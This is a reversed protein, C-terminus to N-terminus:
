PVAHRYHPQHASRHAGCSRPDHRRPRSARHGAAGAQRAQRQRRAALRRPRRERRRRGSRRRAQRQHRAAPRRPEVDPAARPSELKANVDRLLRELLEADPAPRPSELKANIDRLLRELLEADPAAARTGELKANIERLLGELHEADPAAHTGELKANIDRLLRELLEADPAAARAGELKANIDRLGELIEANPATPPAGELKASIERMLGELPRTDLAVPREGLRRLVQELPGTDIIPNTRRDIRAGLDHIMSEFAAPDISAATPRDLKASIERMAQELASTDLRAGPPSAYRTEISERVGDIRRSLEELARPSVTPAAPPRELAQDMKSAVQELRREISTLASAPTSREVQARAEALSAVLQASEVHPALSTPLRDVRDALDGIQKELRDLPVPRQALAALLNRAEETQQRIRELALPNVSARAIGDVKAGIASIERQLAEVAQRPDHARLSERLEAVLGDVPALLNDRAGNERSAAVRQSLDRIAGELAVVANRPALDALSRSMAALEVRLGEINAAPAERKESHERRLEELRQSLKAIETQLASAASEKAATQKAATEIAIDRAPPAQEASRAVAPPGAAFDRWGRKAAESQGNAAQADLEQRRRTIQTVAENIDLRPRVARPADRGAKDAAEIRRSLENVREALDRPGGPAPETRAAPRNNAAAAHAAQQAAIREELSALRGVVGRLTEHEDRQKNQSREIWTAMSDLARAARAESKAARSEFRAIAADLLDEARSAEGPTAPEAPARTAEGEGERPARRANVDDRRPLASLREGIADLREEQDFDEPNVGQEAAQEAIVDDLWEGLSMGARRAAEQAANRTERGVGRVNWAAARNM